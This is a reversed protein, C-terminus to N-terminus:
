IDKLARSAGLRIRLRTMADHREHPVAIKAPRLACWLESEDRSSPGRGIEVCPDGLASWRTSEADDLLRRELIAGNNLWVTKFTMESWPTPSSAVLSADADPDIPSGDDAHVSAMQAIERLRLRTEDLSANGNRDPDQAFGREIAEIALRALLVPDQVVHEGTLDLGVMMVAAKARRGSGSPMVHISSFERTEAVIRISDRHAKRLIEMVEHADSTEANGMGADFATLIKRTDRRRSALMDSTSIRRTM